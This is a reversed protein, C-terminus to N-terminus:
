ALYLSSSFSFFTITPMNLPINTQDAHVDECFFEAKGWCDGGVGGGGGGGQALEHVTARKM